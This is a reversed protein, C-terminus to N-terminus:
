YSKILEIENEDKIIRLETLDLSTSFDVEIDVLNKALYNYQNFILANGEFALSNINLKKILEVTKSLLGTKQKIITFSTQESAQKTYRSDTILFCDNLTIILFTDDGTFGSFYHLNEEKSILMADCYNAQLVKRLKEIRNNQYM